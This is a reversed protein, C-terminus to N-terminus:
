LFVLVYLCSCIRGLDTCSLCLQDLAILMGWGADHALTLDQLAAGLKRDLTVVAGAAVQEGSM